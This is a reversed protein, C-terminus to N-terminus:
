GCPKQAGMVLIVMLWMAESSGDCTHGDVLHSRLEWWLYSWWGLLKLVGLLVGIVLIVMLWITESSGDCTHGDVM